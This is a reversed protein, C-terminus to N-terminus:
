VSSKTCKRRWVRGIPLQQPSSNSSNKGDCLNRRPRRKHCSKCRHESRPAFEAGAFSLRPSICVRNVLHITHEQPPFGQSLHVLRAEHLDVAEHVRALLCKAALSLSPYRCTYRPGQQGFRGFRCSTCLLCPLAFVAGAANLLQMSVLCDIHAIHM